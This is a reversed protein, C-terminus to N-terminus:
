RARRTVEISASDVVANRIGERGLWRHLWFGDRGAEYCSVVAVGAGLGFKAKAERLEARVAEVDGAQITRRRMKGGASFGLKWQRDSLEFAMYLVQGMGSGQRQQAAQM